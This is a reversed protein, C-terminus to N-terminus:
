KTKCLPCKNSTELWKDVCKSHYHHFCQMLRLEDNEEFEMFCIKCETKDKNEEGCNQFKAKEFKFTPLQIKLEATNPPPSGFEDGFDGESGYNDAHAQANMGGGMGQGMMQMM